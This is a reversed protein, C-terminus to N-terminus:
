SKMDEVLMDLFRTVSKGVFWELHGWDEFVRLESDKLLNKLHFVNERPTFLDQGGFYIFVKTRINELDYKPPEQQGYIKMNEEEGFDYKLFERKNTVIMQAFHDISRLSTRAPYSKAYARIKTFDVERPNSTEAQSLIYQCFIETTECFFTILFDTIFDPNIPSGFMKGFGFFKFINILKINALFHYFGQMQSMESLFVVPALAIYKSIKENMEPHTALFAFTAAAGQSHGMLTVKEEGTEKLVFEVVNLLDVEGMEQFSYNWFQINGSHLKSHKCSYKNGRFNVFFLDFGEKVLVNGISEERGSVWQDASDCIAHSLVVPKSNKLSSRARFIKLIYDESPIEYSSFIFSPDLMRHFNMDKECISSDLLEKVQADILLAFFLYNM